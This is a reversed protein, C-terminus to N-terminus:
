MEVFDRAAELESTLWGVDRQQMPAWSPVRDSNQVVVIIDPKARHGNTRVGTAAREDGDGFHDGRERFPDSATREPRELRLPDGNAM